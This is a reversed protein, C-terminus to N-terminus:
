IYSIVEESICNNLFFSLIFSLYMDFWLAQYLQLAPPPILCPLGGGEATHHQTVEHAPGPFGGM